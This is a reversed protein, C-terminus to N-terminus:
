RATNAKGGHSAAARGVVTKKPRAALNVSYYTSAPTNLGSGAVRYLPFEIVFLLV